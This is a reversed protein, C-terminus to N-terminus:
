SCTKASANWTGGSKECSQRGASEMVSKVIPTAILFVAAILIITAVTMNAEGATEKM